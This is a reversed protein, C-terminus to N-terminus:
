RFLAVYRRYFGHFIPGERATRLPADVMQPHDRFEVAFVDITLQKESIESAAFGHAPLNVAESAHFQRGFRSALVIRWFRGACFRSRAERSVSATGSFTAVENSVNAACSSCRSVASQYPARCRAVTAGVTNALFSDRRAHGGDVAVDILRM